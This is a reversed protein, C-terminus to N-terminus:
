YRLSMSNSPNLDSASSLEKAFV